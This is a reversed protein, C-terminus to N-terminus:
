ISQAYALSFSRNIFKYNVECLLSTVMSPFVSPTLGAMLQFVLLKDAPVHLKLFVCLREPYVGSGMFCNRTGM